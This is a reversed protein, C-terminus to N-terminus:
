RVLKEPISWGSETIPYVFKNYWEGNRFSGNVNFQASDNKKYMVVDWGEWHLNPNNVVIEEMKQLNTVLM